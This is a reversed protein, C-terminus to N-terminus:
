FETYKKSTGYCPNNDRPTQIPIGRNPSIELVTVALLTYLGLSPPGLMSGETKYDM